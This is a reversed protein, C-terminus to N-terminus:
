LELGYKYILLTDIEDQTANKIQRIENESFLPISFREIYKKQYCYYGGEIAYSTNSVYYDMIFSNLVKELFCLDYRDNEFIAYGNIFLADENDIYIFRPKSSFTPFLLKKGYKNLGQTRGYAYWGQKNRKGKDRCDLEYKQQLLYDYTHPYKEQFVEEPILTYGKTTRVYPFIIYRQADSISNYFKLESVKYIPRVLGPEIYYKRDNLKKFYGGIDHEVLYVDDRLTAIGTRIFEKISIFQNEIRWLNKRTKEDVLKWGNKDLRNIDMSEFSTNILALEIDDTKELVSYRFSAKKQHDLLLICNYTRVPKFVMNYGFDIISRIMSNKQLYERLNLASKITLFNNPVIFGLVGETSLNKMSHEIFAYFINVVGVKTTIFNEKLFKKKESNMDHTNVYPPNGIIYNIEKVNFIIKWDEKLSDICKIRPKISSKEGYKKSLIEMILHCRRINHEEIDAGLINKEILERVPINFKKHLYEIVSVLFIGCGCAPDIIVINEDWVTLDSFIQRVIYDAIYKPTFVIGNENKTNEELLYEFLEVISEISTGLNYHKLISVVQSTNCSDEICESDSLCYNMIGKEVETFSFVSLEKKLIYYLPIRSSKDM